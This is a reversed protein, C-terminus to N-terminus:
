QAPQPGYVHVGTAQEYEACPEKFVICEGMSPESGLSEGYPQQPVNPEPQPPAHFEFTSWTGQKQAFAACDALSAQASEVGQDIAACMKNEVMLQFGQAQAAAAIASPSEARPCLKVLLKSAHGAYDAKLSKKGPIILYNAEKPSSAYTAMLLQDTSTPFSKVQAVVISSSKRLEKVASLTQRKFSPFGDTILLLVGHADMRDSQKLTTHAKMIAQAMNTFGRQWTLGQIATAVADMNSELPLVLEADSVVGDVLHGNGFHVVSVRVAKAGYAEGKLKKVVQVAFTKLIDFGKETVSGSGDLALVVDLKAVCVEDGHCKQANCTKQELRSLHVPAPCTGEAREPLTVTKLRKTIGADCAQSCAAWPQWDSLACDRDCSGSNCPRSEQLSECAKGGHNPKVELSRFRTQMGGGCVKTCKSFESFESLKCDVPCKFQGCKTTMNLRPCAAGYGKKAVIVERTLLQTGGALTDDCPVSCPKYTWDSVFCDSIDSDKMGVATKLLENRVKTTGCIETSLIERMTNKSELEEKEFANQLDDAMKQKESQEETASSTHATIEGLTAGLDGIKKALSDLEVKHHNDMQEWDERSNTMKDTSEEVLDKMEGWLMSFTDHLVGCDPKANACRNAAKDADPQTAVETTATGQPTQRSVLSITDDDGDDLNANGLGAGLVGAVALNGGGLQSARLVQKLMERGNSTLRSSSNDLRADEFRIEVRGAGDQCAEVGTSTAAQASSSAGQVLSAAGDKCRSLELMYEAVALDAKRSALIPEDKAKEEQFALLAAEQQEKVKTTDGDATTTSALNAVKMRELNALEASIRVLDTQAQNHANRNKRKFEDWEMHKLDLREQAKQIKENLIAAAKDVAAQDLQVPTSSFFQVVDAPPKAVALAEDLSMGRSANTIIAGLSVSPGENLLSLVAADVLGAFSNVRTAVAHRVLSAKTHPPDSRLRVSLASPPCAALLLAALCVAVM